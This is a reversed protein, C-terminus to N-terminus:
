QPIKSFIGVAKKLIAVEEKLRDNERQLRKLEADRANGKGPFAGKGEEVFVDRWRYIQTASVGLDRAAKSVGHESSLRIAELKFEKTYTKRSGM